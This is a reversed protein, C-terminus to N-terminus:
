KDLGYDVTNNDAQNSINCHNGNNNYSSQDHQVQICKSEDDKRYGDIINKYDTNIVTQNQSATQVLEDLWIRTPAHVSEYKYEWPFAFYQQENSKAEEHHHEQQHHNEYQNGDHENQHHQDHYHQDHHHQDHHHQDHEDHHHQHEYHHRYQEEQHHHGKHENQQREHIFDYNFEFKPIPQPEPAIWVSDLNIPKDWANDYQSLDPINASMGYNPPSECAPNWNIMQYNNHSDTNMEHNNQHNSNQALENTASVDNKELEFHEM